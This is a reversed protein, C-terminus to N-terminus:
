WLLKVWVMKSFVWNSIDRPVNSGSEMIELNFVSLLHVVYFESEIAEAASSNDFFTVFAYNDRGFFVCLVVRLQVIRTYNISVKLLVIYMYTYTDFLQILLWLCHNNYSNSAHHTLSRIQTWSFLLHVNLPPFKNANM